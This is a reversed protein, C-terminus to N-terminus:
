RRVEWVPVGARKCREVMNETGPGGPFAVCAAVGGEAPMAANRKPGASFDVPGRRGGSRWAAPRPEEPVWSEMAWEGALTDAGSAAGHRVATIAMRRAVRDLLDWVRARDAYDRGGCVLLM